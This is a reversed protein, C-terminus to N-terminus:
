GNASNIKNMFSDLDIISDFRDKKKSFIWHSIEEKFTVMGGLEAQRMIQYEIKSNTTNLLLRFKRLTMNKLINIDHGCAMLCVIQKELSPFEIDKNVLRNYEDLEAKLEPDIYTDDYNPDNQYMVIKRLDDFDRWDYLVGKIELVYNGSDNQKIDIDGKNFSVHLCLELCKVLKQITLLDGNELLYGIFDLYNMSIIKANPIEDKAIALVDCSSIFSIYDEMKVPYILLEKLPVPEDWTFYRQKIFDLNVAM